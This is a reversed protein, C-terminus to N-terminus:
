FTEPPWPAPRLRVPGADAPRPAMGLLSRSPRVVAALQLGPSFSALATLHDELEQADIEEPPPPHEDVFARLGGTDDGAGGDAARDVPFPGDLALVRVDTAWAAPRGDAGLAVVFGVAFRYPGGMDPPLHNFAEEPPWDELRLTVADGEEPASLSPRVQVDRDPGMTRRFVVALDAPTAPAPPVVSLALPTPAPPADADLLRLLPLRDGTEVAAALAGGLASLADRLHRAPAGEPHPEAGHAPASDPSDPSDARTAAAPLTGLLREMAARLEDAVAQRQAHPADAFGASLGGRVLRALARRAAPSLTNIPNIPPKTPPRTPPKM